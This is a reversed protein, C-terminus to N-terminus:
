SMLSDRSIGILSRRLPRMHLISWIVLAGITCSNQSPDSSWIIRVGGHSSLENNAMSPFRARRHIKKRFPRLREFACRIQRCRVDGGISKEKEAELARHTWIIQGRCGGSHPQIIQSTQREPCGQGDSIQGRDQASLKWWPFFRKGRFFCFHVSRAKCNQRILLKIRGFPIVISSGGPYVGWVAEGSACAAEHGNAQWGHHFFSQVEPPCLGDGNLPFM